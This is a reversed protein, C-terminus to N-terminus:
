RSLSAVEADNNKQAPKQAAHWLYSVECDSFCLCRPSLLLHSEPHVSFLYRYLHCHFPVTLTGCSCLLYISQLLKCPFVLSSSENSEVNNNELPTVQKNNTSLFLLHFPSPM